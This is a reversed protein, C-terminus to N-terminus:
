MTVPTASGPPMALSMGGAGAGMSWELWYSAAAARDAASLDEWRPGELGQGAQSRRYHRHMQAIVADAGNNPGHVAAPASSSSAGRGASPTTTRDARGLRMQMRPSTSSAPQQKHHQRRSVAANRRQMQLQPL